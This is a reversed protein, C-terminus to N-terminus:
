QRYHDLAAAGGLGATSLGALSKLGYKEVWKGITDIMKQTVVQTKPAPPLGLDAAAKNPPRIAYYDLRDLYQPSGTKEYMQRLRQALGTLLLEGKVSGGLGRVDSGRTAIPYVTHAAPGTKGPAVTAIHYGMYGSPTNYLDPNASAIRAMGVDPGGQDIVRKADLVKMIKSRANGGVEEVYEDLNASKFGPFKPQPGLGLIDAHRMREDLIKTLKRDFNSPDLTQRVAGYAQDSFDGGTKAMKVSVLVPRRGREAAEIAAKNIGTAASQANGWVDQLGTYPDVPQGAYFDFGGQQRVPTKFRKGGMEVMGPGVIKHTDDGVIPIIEDGPRLAKDIPMATRQPPPNKPDYALRWTMDEVPTGGKINSYGSSQRDGRLRTPRRLIGERMAKEIASTEDFYDDAISMMPSFTGPKTPQKAVLQKEAPFKYDLWPPREHRERATLDKRLPPVNALNEGASRRYAERMALEQIQRRGDPSNAFNRVHQVYNNYSKDSIVHGGYAEAEFAEKSLPTTVKTRVEDYLRSMQKSHKWVDPNGGQPFGEIQQIGHGTEHLLTDLTRGRATDVGKEEVHRYRILGPDAPDIRHYYSGMHKPNGGVLRSVEMNALSPYAEYVPPNHYVESLTAPKANMIAEDAKDRALESQRFWEKQGFQSSHLNPNDRTFIDRAVKERDLRPPTGLYRAQTDPIEYFWNKGADQGWGTQNWIQEPTAGRKKMLEAVRLKVLDATKSARGALTAQAEEPDVAFGGLVAAGKLLKGGVPGGAVMLGVDLPSQPVVFGALAKDAALSEAPTVERGTLPDRQLNQLVPQPAATIEPLAAQARENAVQKDYAGWVQGPHAERYQEMGPRYGGAPTGAAYLDALTPAPPPPESPPAMWDYEGGISGIPSM